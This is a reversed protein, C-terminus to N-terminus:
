AEDEQTFYWTVPARSEAAARDRAIMEDATQPPAKVLPQGTQWGEPAAVDGARTAQLADLVRLLEVVSRGVAMPYHLMVRLVGEPDIFFVSRVAATSSAGPHIMGYAEAVTMSIDEMIPFQIDVGFSERVSRMWALHAYVSDVSLGLLACDRAEFADAARAFAVFESTCVPTFDAPHAFLMLWRGRYDSLARVGQTTRATFPPAPEDIRPGFGPVGPESVASPGARMRGVPGGGYGSCADDM